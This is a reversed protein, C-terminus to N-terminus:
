AGTYEDPRVGAEQVVPMRPGYCGVAPELAFRVPCHAAHRDFIARGDPAAARDQRSDRNAAVRKDSGAGDHGAINGGLSQDEAIWGPEVAVYAMAAAPQVPVAIAGGAPPLEGM